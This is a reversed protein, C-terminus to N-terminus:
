KCFQAMEDVTRQGPASARDLCAFTLACGWSKAETRAQMGTEGMPIVCFPTGQGALTGCVERLVRIDADNQVMCALKIMDAGSARLRNAQALLRDASPTGDFDHHSAIVRSGAQHLQKVTLAANPLNLAEADIWQAGSRAASLLLEAYADPMGIGETRLTFLLPKGALASLIQPVLTQVTQASPLPRLADARWEAWEAGPHAAICAAERLLADANEGMMPVAINMGNREKRRVTM